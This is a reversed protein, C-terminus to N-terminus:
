ATGDRITTFEHDGYAAALSSLVNLHYSARKEAGEAFIRATKKDVELLRSVRQHADRLERRLEGIEAQRESDKVVFSAILENQVFSILLVGVLATGILSLMVLDRADPNRIFHEFLDILALVVAFVTAMSESLRPTRLLRKLWGIKPKRGTSEDQSQEANNMDEEERGIPM